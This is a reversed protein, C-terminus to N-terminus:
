PELNLTWLKPNQTEPKSEPGVRAGSLPPCVDIDHRRFHTLYILYSFINPTDVWFIIRKEVAPELLYVTVSLEPTSPAVWQWNTPVEGKEVSLAKQFPTPM